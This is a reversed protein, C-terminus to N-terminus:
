QIVTDKAVLGDEANEIEGKAILAAVAQDIVARSLGKLSPCDLKFLSSNGTRRVIVGEARKQVLAKIVRGALQEHDDRDQIPPTTGNAADIPDLTLTAPNRRFFKGENLRAFMPESPPINHKIIGVEIAGTSRPIMGVVVRARDMHVGSGRVAADVDALRKPSAGKKLHHIAIVACQKERAITTLESYFRNTVDSSDEDGILFARVPDFIVLDIAPLRRVMELCQAFSYRAGDIIWGKADGYVPQFFKEREDHIAEPDEATFTVALFDGEIDVGLFRRPTEQDCELKATLESVLTSKGSGKPGVLLTVVGRPLLGPVVWQIGKGGHTREKSTGCMTFLEVDRGSREWRDNLRRLTERAISVRQLWDGCSEDDQPQLDATDADTDYCLTPFVRGRERLQDFVRAPFFHSAVSTEVVVNSLDGRKGLNVHFRALNELEIGNEELAVGWFIPTLEAPAHGQPDHDKAAEAYFGDGRIFGVRAFHAAYPTLAASLAQECSDIRAERDGDYDDFAHEDAFAPSFWVGPELDSRIEHREGDTGVVDASAILRVGIVTFGISRSEDVAQAQAKATFPNNQPSFDM